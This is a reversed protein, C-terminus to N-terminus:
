GNKWEEYNFRSKQRLDKEINRMEKEILISDEENEGFEWGAIIASDILDSILRHAKNKIETKNM